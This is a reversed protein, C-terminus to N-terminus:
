CTPRSTRSGIRHILGSLIIYRFYVTSLSQQLKPIRNHSTKVWPLCGHYSNVLRSTICFTVRPFNSEGGSLQGNSNYLIISSHQRKLGVSRAKM